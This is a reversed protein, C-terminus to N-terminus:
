PAEWPHWRPHQQQQQQQMPHMRTHQQQQQQGVQVHHLRGRGDEACVKEGMYVHSSKEEGQHHHHHHHHSDGEFEPWELLMGEDDQADGQAWASFSSASLGRMHEPPLLEIPAHASANACAEDIPIPASGSACAEFPAQTSGSTCAEIPAHVSGSACAEMPAQTSGSAQAQQQQQQQRAQRLGGDRSFLKHLHAGSPTNAGSASNGPPNNIAAAAGAAAAAALVVSAKPPPLNAALHDRLYRAEAEKALIRQQVDQLAANATNRQELLRKTLGEQETASSVLQMEHAEELRMEAAMLQRQIAREREGSAVLQEKYTKIDSRREALVKKLGELKEQLTRVEEDRAWLSEKLQRTEAKHKQEAGALVEECSESKVRLEQELTAAKERAEQQTVLLAAQADSLETELSTVHCQALQLKQRLAALEEAHRAEAQSAAAASSARVQM